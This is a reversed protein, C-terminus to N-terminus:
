SHAALNLSTRSLMPVAAEHPVVNFSPRNVYVGFWLAVHLYMLISLRPLTNCQSITDQFSM